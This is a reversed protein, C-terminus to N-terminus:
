WRGGLLRKAITEAESESISENAGVASWDYANWDHIWLVHGKTTKLLVSYGGKHPRVQEVTATEGHTVQGARASLGGHGQADFDPKEYTQVPTMGDYRIRAGVTLHAPPKAEGLLGEVISEVATGGGKPSAIMDQDDEDQDGDDGNVGAFAGGAQPTGLQWGAGDVYRVVVKPMGMGARFGYVSGPQSKAADLWQDIASYAPGPDEARWDFAAKPSFNVRDALTARLAEHDVSEWTLEGHYEVADTGLGLDPYTLGPSLEAGGVPAESWDRWLPLTVITIPEAM